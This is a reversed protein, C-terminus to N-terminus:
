ANGTLVQEAGFRKLRRYVGKPSKPDLVRTTPNGAVTGYRVYDGEIVGKEVMRAILNRLAKAKKANM